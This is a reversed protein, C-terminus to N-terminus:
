TFSALTFLSCVMHDWSESWTLSWLSCFLPHTHDPPLPVSPFHFVSVSLTPSAIITVVHCPITRLIQLMHWWSHVRIYGSKSHCCTSALEDRLLHVATTHSTSPPSPQAYSSPLPVRRKKWKMKRYDVCWKLLYLSAKTPSPHLIGCLCCSVSFPKFVSFSTNM